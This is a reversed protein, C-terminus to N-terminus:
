SPAKRLWARGTIPRKPCHNSGAQRMHDSLESQALPYVLSHRYISRQIQDASSLETHGVNYPTSPLAKLAPRDIEAFLENRSVGLKRMIKANLDAVIERIAANLETLSFFRRNRLRALM